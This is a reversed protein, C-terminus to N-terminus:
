KKELKELITKLESFDLGLSIAKRYYEIAKEKKGAELYLDGVAQHVEANTPHLELAISALAFLTDVKEREALHRALSRFSRPSVAGSEPDIKLARKFLNRSSEINGKRLHVCALSVLVNPSDPYLTDCATFIEFARDEEDQWLYSWGISIMEGKFDPYVRANAFDRKLRNVLEKYDIRPTIVLNRAYDTYTRNWDKHWRSFLKIFKGPFTFARKQAPWKQSINIFDNFFTFFGEKQYKKLADAGYAEILKAAMFSGIKTFAQKSGPHIGSDIKKKTEKFDKKLARLDMYQNFFAFAEKLQEEDETLPANKWDYYGLGYSFLRDCASLLALTETESTFPRSNLDESLVLETLRVVYSGLPFGERNSGMFIAFKIKPLILLYTATEAQAGGHAVQFHGHWPRVSWGMGYGTFRGGRTAMSTFMMEATEKKLLKGEIVGRAYKLMDVATSRTGGGAFRSSIDVFESNRIQNNILRYGKVRNSILDGPDDLRSNEMGLPVFINERIYDGYSQGSAGEIVAGLLNFGYSSYNYKTGPEAVLDFGSFIALAEKTNKHEKIHGEKDYDRYHSIGGLHGLLLRVTVPWKKKPFYPVYTQVEADLDIKGKEVLQLIGIATFTKTISALRYASEAKTPTKNELDAYGFGKVWIFDDKIFGVSLGVGRDFALRENVYNEFRELAEGYKGTNGSNEGALLCPGTFLFQFVLIITIIFTQRNIRM